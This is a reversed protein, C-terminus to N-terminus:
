QINVVQEDIISIVKDFDKIWEGTKMVGKHYTVVWWWDNRGWEVIVHRDGCVVKVGSSRDECVADVGFRSRVTDRLTKIGQQILRSDAIVKAVVNADEMVVRSMTDDSYRQRAERLGKKRAEQYKNQDHFVQGVDGPYHEKMYQWLAAAEQLETM